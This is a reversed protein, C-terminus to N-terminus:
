PNLQLILLAALALLLVSVAKRFIRESLRELLRRGLVTGVVVAATGLLV